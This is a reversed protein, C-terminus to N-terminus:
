RQKRHQGHTEGVGSASVHALRGLLLGVPHRNAHKAGENGARQPDGLPGSGFGLRGRVKIGSTAANRAKL